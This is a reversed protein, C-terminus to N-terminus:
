HLNILSSLQTRNLAQIGKVQQTRLIYRYLKYHDSPYESAFDLTTGQKNWLVVATSIWNSVRPIRICTSSSAKYIAIRSYDTTGYAVALQDRQPSWNYVSVTEVTTPAPLVDNLITFSATQVHFVILQYGAEKSTQIAVYNGSPSVSMSMLDVAPETLAINYNKHNYALHITHVTAAPLTTNAPKKISVTITGSTLSTTSSTHHVQKQVYPIAYEYQTSPLNAQTTTSAAADSPPVPLTSLIVATCLSVIGIAKNM